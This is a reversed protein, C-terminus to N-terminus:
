FENYDEFDEEEEEILEECRVEELLSLRFIVEDLTEIAMKRYEIEENLSQRTEDRLKGLIRVSNIDDIEEFYQYKMERIESLIRDLM